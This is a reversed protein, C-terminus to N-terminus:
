WDLKSDSGEEDDITSREKAGRDAAEQLRKFLSTGHVHYMKLLGGAALLSKEIPDLRFPFKDGCCSILRGEVDIELDVGERALEYFKEDKMIIGLLGNNAQNRGYIFAFSKAIVAQIGTALLCKPAQERSSGSGFANEAVVINAGAVALDCFGPKTYCFAARALVEPTTNVCKDTPSISDTDVNSGFRQVRGRIISSLRNSPTDSTAQSSGSRQLRVVESELVPKPESYEVAPCVKSSSHQRMKDFDTFDLRDLLSQPNQLTM